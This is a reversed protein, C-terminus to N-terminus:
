WVALSQKRSFIPGLNDVEQVVWKATAPVLRDLEAAVQQGTLNGL